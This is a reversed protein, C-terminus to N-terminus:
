SGRTDAVLPAGLPTVKRSGFRSVSVLAACGTGLLFNAAAVFVVTWPGATWSPRSSALGEPGVNARPAVYTAWLSHATVQRISDIDQHVTSETTNQVHIFLVPLLPGTSVTVVKSRVFRLTRYYVENCYYSGPDRSWLEIERSLRGRSPRDIVVLNKLSLWGVNVTTAVLWPAGAEAPEAGPDGSDQARRNSAVVELKLGKAFKEFGTHVVADYPMPAGSTLWNQLVQTTWMAGTRNVPLVVTDWCVRLRTNVERAVDDPSEGPDPLIDVDDCTSALHRAISMTPNRTVNLFPGFGTLLVRFPRAAPGRADGSGIGVALLLARALWAMASCKM